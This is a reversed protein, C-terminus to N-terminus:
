LGYMISSPTSGSTVAAVLEKMIRHVETHKVREKEDKREREMGRQRRERERKQERQTHRERERGRRERWKEAKQKRHQQTYRLKHTHKNAFFFNVLAHAYKYSINRRVGESNCSDETIWNPTIPM